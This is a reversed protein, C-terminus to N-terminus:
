LVHLSDIEIMVSNGRRREVTLELTLDARGQEATWLDIDIAWTSAQTKVPYFDAHALEEPPVDVFTGPYQTM